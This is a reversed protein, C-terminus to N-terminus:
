LLFTGRRPHSRRITTQANSLTPQAANRHVSVHFVRHSTLRSESTVTSSEPSAFYSLNVLDNEENPILRSNSGTSKRLLTKASRGNNPLSPLRRMTIFYNFQRFKSVSSFSFFTSLLFFIHKWFTVGLKSLIPSCNPACQSLFSVRSGRYTLNGRKNM